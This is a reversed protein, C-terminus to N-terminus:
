RGVCIKSMGFTVLGPIWPISLLLAMGTNGDSDFSFIVRWDDVICTLGYNQNWSRLKFVYKKDQKPISCWFSLITIESSCLAASKFNLVEKAFYFLVVAVVVFSATSLSLSFCPTIAIWIKRETNKKYCLSVISHSVAYLPQFFCLCWCCKGYSIAAWRKRQKRWRFAVDSESVGWLFGENTELFIKLRDVFIRGRWRKSHLLNKLLAQIWELSCSFWVIIAPM